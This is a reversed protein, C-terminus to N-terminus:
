PIVPPCYDPVFPYDKSDNWCRGPQVDYIFRFRKLNYFYGYWPDNEPVHQGYTGTIFFNPKEQTPEGWYKPTWYQKMSECPTFNLRLNYNLNMRAWLTTMECATVEATYSRRVIDFRSLYYTDSNGQPTVTLFYKQEGRYKLRIYVNDGTFNWVSLTSPWPNVASLVFAALLIAFIILKKNM